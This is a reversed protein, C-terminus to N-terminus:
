QVKSNTCLLHGAVWTTHTHLLWGCFVSRVKPDKERFWIKAVVALYIRPPLLEAPYTALGAPRQPLAARPVYEYPISIASNCIRAFLPAPDIACACSRQSWSALALIRPNLLDDDCWRSTRRDVSSRRRRNSGNSEKGQRANCQPWQILSVWADPPPLEQLYTSCWNLEPLCTTATGFLLVHRSLGLQVQVQVCSQRRPRASFLM